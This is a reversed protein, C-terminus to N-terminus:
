RAPAEGRVLAEAERRLLVCALWDVPHIPWEYVGLATSKRTAEDVWPGAKDLWRGAEAPNGQRQCAMALVLWNLVQSEGWSQDLSERCRRAADDYHGARYHALGLAHLCHPGTPQAKVAQEALRVLAALDPVGDPALVASRVLLHITWPDKTQGFRELFRTCLRSYGAADGRHARLWALRYGFDLNEVPAGLELVLTSDAAARDWQGLEVCARCRRARLLGDNPQEEILRDLHWAVVFWNQAAEGAAAQAQYWASKGQQLQAARTEASHVASDWVRVIGDEGAAAIRQGDPSFALTFVPSPCAFALIEQGRAADWIKVEGAPEGTVGAATVLRTSDHSFAVSMGSRAPGRLTFLKEGTAAAVVRVIGATTGLALREGDPSFAVSLAGDPLDGLTFVGQGTTADWVRVTADLGASALRNGDPSFAVGVINRQHGSCALVEAGTEADWVKLVDGSPAALRRGDPRYAVGAIVRTLMRRTMLTSLGRRDYVLPGAPWRRFHLLERGTAPDWIKMDGDASATALRKGDPSFAVSQDLKQGTAITRLERGTIADWLKVIGYTDAAALTKGDSSFAVSHAGVAQGRLLRADQPTTVDWIKVTGDWGGSALHLGDPSFAVSEPYDTHGRFTLVEQGSDANWVKVTKERSASSALYQGDPSYALGSVRGAHGRFSRVKQGHVADWVHLNGQTDAAALRRGNPGFVVAVAGGPVSLTFIEEGTDTKWVKVTDGHAAALRRDDPSFRICPTAGGVRFSRPKTLSRCTLLHRGTASDWVKAIGGADVSALRRSDSSFVANKLEPSENDVGFVKLGAGADWVQVESRYAPHNHIGIAFGAAPTPVIVSVLRRGDPSFAANGVWDKQAISLHVQGTLTDWIKLKGDAGASVLRRGDASYAVSTVQGVHGRLTLLDAQQLRELYRGEWRRLEAPCDLLLEASRDTNSAWWERHALAITQFYRAQQESKLARTRDDLAKETEQKERTILVNNAALGVIGLALLALGFGAASWVVARHRRAWKRLRQLLSPRKARIPQDSLFRQLDDALDHATAYREAPNREMAKLVITELEAPIRHNLRRPRRPEEFAIQRLLEQRDAGGFAPELTLLEYLTVGLSYIDTRHDMPVRRALAQEPSMYRLTGVLDGSMTLGAQSQCHALGFDTIWLNGRTDVLLNAPKIDRHVIGQEHAHELALAAQVGLHVATRFFAPNQGSHETSLTAVAPTVAEASPAPGASVCDQVPGTPEDWAARKGVAGAPGAADGKVSGRLEGIMAALTQGEIFQMAYYHVGRECGVAYVPVINTHHLHAAAQAENKFRQQQRADLASAFPLVKLAVHRGLSIQVAEYVVGMGGQGVQRLLRFDGLPEESRIEAAATSDRAPELTTPGLQPGAAQIFELGHLCEALAAAVRPHRSLFEHRDPARGDRQLALYQEVARLVEPDALGPVDASAPATGPSRCRDETANM